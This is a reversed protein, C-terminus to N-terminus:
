NQKLFLPLLLSVAMAVEEFKESIRKTSHKPPEVWYRLVYDMWEHIEQQYTRCNCWRSKPEIARCAKPHNISEIENKKWNQKEWDRFLTEMKEERFKELEGARINYRAGIERGQLYRGPELSVELKKLDDLQDPSLLLTFFARAILPHM